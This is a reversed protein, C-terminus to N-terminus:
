LTVFAIKAVKPRLIIREATGCSSFSDAKLETIGDPVRVEKECGTYRVLVTGNVEFDGM